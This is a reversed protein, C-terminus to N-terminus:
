LNTVNAEYRDNAAIFEQGGASPPAYKIMDELQTLRADIQVLLQEIRNNSKKKRLYESRALILPEIDDNDYYVQIADKSDFLWISLWRRNHYFSTVCRTINNYGYYSRLAGQYLEFGKRLLRIGSNVGLKIDVRVTAGNITITHSM